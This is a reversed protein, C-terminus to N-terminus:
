ARATFVQYALPADCRGDGRRLPGLLQEMATEADALRDEPIGLFRLYDPEDFLAEPGVVATHSYAFREIASWGAVTLIAATREPDALAFPGGASKGPEPDPAPPLLSQFAPGSFWPNDAARQWCAFTLRGGPHLHSRINAFAATPDDFFMVGFQSVAADFPAGDVRAVQADAVVFRANTVGAEASRQRALDLLPASLDAGVAEGGPGVDRAAAITTRGGGCGVDLIRGGAEFSAHGFLAPTVAATMPERRRWAALRVADNWHRRQAQNAGDGGATREDDVM